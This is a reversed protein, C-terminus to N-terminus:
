KLCWDRRRTHGSYPVCLGERILIAGADRGDVRLYGLQRGYRDIRRDAVFDVKKASVILQRLRATAANGRARESECRACYTEPCDFGVLRLSVGNVRVTDGDVVEIASARVLDPARKPVALAQNVSAARKERGREPEQYAPTSISRDM